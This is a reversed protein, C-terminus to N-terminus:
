YGVPFPQFGPMPGGLRLYGPNGQLSTNFPNPLDRTRIDTGEQQQRMVENYVAEVTEADSAIQNDFFSGPFTRWGFIKNAQGSISTIDYYRGTSNYFARNMVDPIIDGPQVSQRVRQATGPNQLALQQQADLLRRELQTLCANLGAAFENRSLAQNGRYTRDPYGVICGYNEVLNRLAEYSWGQPSVDRLQSISNVQNLFQSYSNYNQDYAM